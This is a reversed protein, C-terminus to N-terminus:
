RRIEIANAIATEIATLFHMNRQADNRARHSHPYARKAGEVCDGELDLFSIIEGYLRYADRNVFLGQFDDIVFGFQRGAARYLEAMWENECREHDSVLQRGAIFEEAELVVIEVPKGESKLQELSIGHVKESEKSWHGWTLWEVTPKILSSYSTQDRKALGIEIPYSGEGPLCSAEFDITVIDGFIFPEAKYNLSYEKIAKM